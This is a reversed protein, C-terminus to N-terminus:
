IEVLPTGRHLGPGPPLDSSMVANGEVLTSHFLFFQNPAFWIQLRWIAIVDKATEAILYIIPRRRLSDRCRCLYNRSTEFCYILSLITQHSVSIRERVAIENRIHNIDVSDERSVQGARAMDERGAMLWKKMTRSIQAGPTGWLSIASKAASPHGTDYHLMEKVSKFRGTDTM